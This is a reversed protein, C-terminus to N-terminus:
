VKKYTWFDNATTIKHCGSASGMSSGLVQEDWLFAIKLLTTM